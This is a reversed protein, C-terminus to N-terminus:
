AFKLSGVEALKLVLIERALLLSVRNIVLELLDFLVVLVFYYQLYRVYM